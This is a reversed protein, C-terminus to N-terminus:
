PGMAPARDAAGTAWRSSPSDRQLHLWVGPGPFPTFHPILTGLPLWFTAIARHPIPAKKGFLPTLNYNEKLIWEPLRKSFFPASYQELIIDFLYWNLVSEELVYGSMQICHSWTSSRDVKDVQICDEAGQPDSCYQWNHQYQTIDGKYIFGNNSNGVPVFSWAGDGTWRLFTCNQYHDYTTGKLASSVCSKILWMLTSLALSYVRLTCVESCDPFGNHHHIFKYDYQAYQSTHIHSIYGPANPCPWQVSFKVCCSEYWTLLVSHGGYKLFINDYM